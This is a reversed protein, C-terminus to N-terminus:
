RCDWSYINISQNPSTTSASNRQEETIKKQTQFHKDKTKKKLKSITGSIHSGHVAMSIVKVGVSEVSTYM